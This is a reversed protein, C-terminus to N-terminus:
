ARYLEWLVVAAATAANLSECRERMPIKVTEACADLLAPSVGSGESGIIVACRQASLDQLPITDQRLATAYLPLGSQAMLDPLRQSEVEWVPLRFAAGMTARVTKWGYPDASHNTLLLGDAGFADATRWITGVNGPDQLGDLVLYRNGELKAPPALEPLQAVFLAGQPAKMPSISAMVDAPVVAGRVGEPLPPCPTGETLVVASLPAHWRLAEELLKVGDGVYARQERRYSRDRLLKKIHGLLPNSRSTIFEM